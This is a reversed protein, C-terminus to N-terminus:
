RTGRNQSNALKSFSPKWKARVTRAGTAPPLTTDAAPTLVTPKTPFSATTLGTTNITFEFTEDHSGDGDFDIAVLYTGGLSAIFDNPTETGGREMENARELVDMVIFSTMEETRKSIM